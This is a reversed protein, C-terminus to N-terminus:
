ESIHSGNVGLTDERPTEPLQISDLLYYIIEPTIESEYGAQFGHFSLEFHHDDQDRLFYTQETNTKFALIRAFRPHTMDFETYKDAYVRRMSVSPDQDFPHEPIPRYTLTFNGRPQLVTFSLTCRNDQLQLKPYNTKLPVSVTLCNTTFVNNQTGEPLSPPPTPAVMRTHTPPPNGYFLFYAIGLGVGIILFLVLSVLLLSQKVHKAAMPNRGIAELGKKIAIMILVISLLFTLIVLGVAMFHRTGDLPNTFLTPQPNTPTENGGQPSPTPTVSASRSASRRNEMINGAVLIGTLVLGVFVVLAVMAPKSIKKVKKQRHQPNKSPTAQIKEVVDKPTESTQKDITYRSGFPSSNTVLDDTSAM